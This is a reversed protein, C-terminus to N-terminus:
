DRRAAPLRLTRISASAVDPRALQLLARGLAVRGGLPSLDYRLPPQAAAERALREACERDATQGTSAAIAIALELELAAIATADIAAARALGRAAAIAAERQAGIEMAAFLAGATDLAIPDPADGMRALALAFAADGNPVDDFRRRQQPFPPPVFPRRSALLAVLARAPDGDLALLLGTAGSVFSTGCRALAAELPIAAAHSAAIADLSPEGLLRATARLTFLQAGAGVLAGCYLPLGAPDLLPWQARAEDLARGITAVAARAARAFRPEGTAAHLEAFLLALGCTGTLLDPEVVDLALLDIHPHCVIGIAALDGDRGAADRAGNGDRDGDGDHVIADRLVADGIAIAEDLWRDNTEARRPQPPLRHATAFCARLLDLEEDLPFEALQEVRHQLRDWAAGDFADRVLTGDPTRVDVTSPMSLFLPIDLQRLAAIEGTSLAREEGERQQGVPHRLLQRLFLERQVGDVLLPPAYSRRLLKYYSWTDRRIFRVPADRLPLLPSDEALLADRGSALLRQMAAYGAALEDFFEAADAAVGDVFPAHEHHSWTAYGSGSKYPTLYHGPKALAGFDVASVGVGIPTLMAVACIEAVSEALRRRAALAAPALAMVVRPQLIMELDIFVPQPGEAILNDLWFDRGEVLQLLRVLMGFRRYFLAAEERSSCPTHAIWEEWAYSGRVVIARTRLPPELGAANLRAILADLAVACRLDKPKYVLRRGSAFTLLAVSRGGGHVDGADGRFATLAGPGDDGFLLSADEALRAALEALGERWQVFATGLLHALVPFREFREPWTPTAPAGLIATAAALQAEYEFLPSAIAHVRDVFLKVLDDRAAATTPWAWSAVFRRPAAFLDDSSALELFAAAWPPPEGALRVTALLREDIADDGTASWQRVLRDLRARDQVPEPEFAGGHREHPPAARAIVARMRDSSFSM